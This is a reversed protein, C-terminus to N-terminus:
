FRRKNHAVSGSGSPVVVAGGSVPPRLAAVSPADRRQHFADHNQLPPAPATQLSAHASDVLRRRSIPDGLDAAREFAELADQSPGFRTELLNGLRYFASASSPNRRTAERYHAAANVFHKDVLECLLGQAESAEATDPYDLSLRELAALCGHMNGSRWLGWARDLQVRPRGESDSLNSRSVNQHPVKSPTRATEPSTELIGFAYNDDLGVSHSSPARSTGSSSRPQKSMVADAIVDNKSLPPTNEKLLARAALCQICMAPVAQLELLDAATLSRRTDEPLLQRAQGRRFCSPVSPHRECPVLDADVSCGYLVAEVLIHQSNYIVTAEETPHGVGYVASDFVDPLSPELKLSTTEMVTNGQLVSCIMIDFSCEHLPPPPPINQSAAAGGRSSTPVAASSAAVFARYETRVATWFDHPFRVPIDQSIGFAVEEWTGYLPTSSPLPSHQKTNRPLAFNSASCRVLFVKKAIDAPDHKVGVGRTWRRTATSGSSGRRARQEAFEDLHEQFIGRHIGHFIEAGMGVRRFQVLSLGGKALVVVAEQMQKVMQTNSDHYRLRLSALIMRQREAVISDRLDIPVGVEMCVADFKSESLYLLRHYPIRLSAEAADVFTAWAYQSSHVDALLFEQLQAAPLDGYPNTQASTDRQVPRPPLAVERELQSRLSAQTFHSFEAPSSSQLHRSHHQTISEDHPQHSSGLISLSAILDLDAERVREPDDDDDVAYPSATNHVDNGDGGWWSGQTPDLHLRDTTTFSGGGGSVSRTTASVSPSNHIDEEAVQRSAGDHLPATRMSELKAIATEKKERQRITLVRDSRVAAQQSVQRGTVAGHAADNYVFSSQDMRRLAAAITEDESGLPWLNSGAHVQRVVHLDRQEIETLHKYSDAGSKSGAGFQMQVYDRMTSSSSRSADDRPTGSTATTTPAASTALLEGYADLLLANTAIGGESRVAYEQPHQEPGYQARLAAFFEREAVTPNPVEGFRNLKGRLMEFSNAPMASCHHACFASLRTETAIQWPEPGNEAAITALLELERGSWSNLLATAARENGLSYVNFYDLLREAFTGRESFVPVEHFYKIHLKSFVAVENVGDVNMITPINSLRSPNVATFFQTLRQEFGIHDSHCVSVRIGFNGVATPVVLGVVKRVHLLDVLPVSWSVSSLITTSQHKQSPDSPLSPEAAHFSVVSSSRAKVLSASRHRTPLVLAVKLTGSLLIPTIGNRTNRREHEQFPFEIQDGFSPDEFLKMEGSATAPLTAHPLVSAADNTNRNQFPVPLKFRESVVLALVPTLQKQSTVVGANVEISLEHGQLVSPIRDVHLVAVEIM